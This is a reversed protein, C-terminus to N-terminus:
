PILSLSSLLVASYIGAVADTCVFVFLNAFLFTWDTGIMTGFCHFSGAGRILANPYDEDTEATQRLNLWSYGPGSDEGAPGGFEASGNSRNQLLEPREREPPGKFVLVVGGRRGARDLVKLQEVLVNVVVTLCKTDFSPRAQDGPAPDSTLVPLPLFSTPLFTSTNTPHPSSKQRKIANVVGKLDQRYFM